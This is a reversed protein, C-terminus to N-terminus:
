GLRQERLVRGEGIVVRPYAGLHLPDRDWVLLSALFGQEVRGLRDGIGVLEANRGTITHIAQEPEMGYMLFYRLSDRLLTSHIVPHDTMLGFRAGSDLLLKANQYFAHRLEVKYAHSGLPGFVVPIDADRLAEFVERHFVDGCHEASVKIGYKKVLHLLYYVDDEKHVHVKVPRKDRLLELLAAEESSFELDRERMALARELKAQAGKTKSRSLELDKREWTLATRKAKLLVEDFRKELMAYIGMRTNPRDGKWGGTSRPNFGLAMKFGFDHLECEGVHAAFNRIVKSRGGFLNGSGPLICSYLVGFDISDVFALDDLYISRIPDSLPQIQHISDNGEQESEPEGARFMGIHSHPDVFAPTVIGSFDAKRRTRSVETISSGEIKVWRDSYSQGGTFLTKAHIIIPKPRSNKKM